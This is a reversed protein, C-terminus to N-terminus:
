KQMSRSELRVYIDSRLFRPYPDSMMIFKIKRQAEDFITKNPSKLAEEIRRKERFDLNVQYISDNQVYDRYIRKAKASIRFNSRKFEECARWFLLSEESREKQLFKYFLEFGVPHDLLVGFNEKWSLIEDCGAKKKRNDKLVPRHRENLHSLMITDSESFARRKPPNSMHPCQIETPMSPGKSFSYDFGELGGPYSGTFRNASATSHRGGM